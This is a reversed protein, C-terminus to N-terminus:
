ASSLPHHKQVVAKLREDLVHTYIQTTSIDAHGLMQQVARLDAGGALLHSAFAHRLVHPSVKEPELGAAIALDKLGFGFQQRTLHGRRGHGPFLWPGTEGPTCELKRCIRLYNGIAARAAESLPVLRERGGKGTITLLRDDAHVTQVTLSVLESVRLGSAYLLEVLCHLRAAKLKERGKCKAIGARASELLRDVQDHSLVKPLPRAQVPGEIITAPNADTLGEAYLFRHFQRVASLRRAATTAAMGQDSLIGLYRRIDDSSASCLCIKCAELVSGYDSLDRRYAELTNPRAGREASMMELFNGILRANDARIIGDSTSISM